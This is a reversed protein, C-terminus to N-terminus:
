WAKPSTGTATGVCRVRRRGGARANVSCWSPVSETMAETMREMVSRIVSYGETMAETMAETMGLDKGLL